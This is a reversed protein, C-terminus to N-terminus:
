SLLDPPRFGPALARDPSWLRAGEGSAAAQLPVRLVVGDSTVAAMTFFAGCGCDCPKAMGDMDDCCDKMAGDGHGQGDAHAACDMPMGFAHAAANYNVAMLVLVLLLRLFKM